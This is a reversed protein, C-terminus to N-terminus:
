FGLYGLPSLQSTPRSSPNSTCGLGSSCSKGSSPHATNGWPDAQLNGEAPSLRLETQENRTNRFNGSVLPLQSGGGSETGHQAALCPLLDKAPGPSPPWSGEPQPILSMGLGPGRPLASAAGPDGVQDAHNVGLSEQRCVSNDLSVSSGRNGFWHGRHPLARSGRRLGFPNHQKKLFPESPLRTDQLAAWGDRAAAAAPLM